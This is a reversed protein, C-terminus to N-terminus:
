RIPGSGPGGPFPPRPGGPPPMGPGGPFPPRGGGPFPPRPRPPFPPRGPFRGRLLERIILIRILDRLTSNRGSFQRDEVARQNKTEIKLDIEISQYVRQTMTEIMQENVPSNINQCEKSIMPYIKRYLDPYCEELDCDCMYAEKQMPMIYSEECSCGNNQNYGLVNKMYEEYSTHYYM